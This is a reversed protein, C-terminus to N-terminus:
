CRWASVALIDVISACKYWFNWLNKAATENECIKWQHEFAHKGVKVASAYWPSRKVVKVANTESSAANRLEATALVIRDRGTQLINQQHKRVYFGVKRVAMCSGHKEIQKKNEEIAAVAEEYSM